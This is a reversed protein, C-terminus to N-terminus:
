RQAREAAQSETVMQIGKFEEADVINVIVGPNEPNVEFTDSMGGVQKWGDNSLVGAEVLGDLIFKKAAAVNDPDTRKDKRIWHFHVFVPYHEVGPTAQSRCHFLVRRTEVKKIQAGKMLHGREADIYENLTTFEDPIFIKQM